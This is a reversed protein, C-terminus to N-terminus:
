RSAGAAGGPEGTIDVPIPTVGGAEVVFAHAEWVTGRPVCVLIAAEPYQWERVDSESVGPPGMPHSHFAAVLDLRREELSALAAVLARPEMTYRVRSHEANEVPLVLEVREGNGALLGCGEEPLCAGLHQVIATWASPDLSISGRAM